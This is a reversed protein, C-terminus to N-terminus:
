NARHYHEVPLALQLAASRTHEMASFICSRIGAWQSLPTPEGLPNGSQVDWRQVTTHSSSDTTFLRAGEPSFVWNSVGAKHKMPEGLPAGTVSNWFQITDFDQGLFACFSRGDPSFLPNRVKQGQGDTQSITKGTELDWTRVSNSDLVGAAVSSHEDGFVILSTVPEVPEIAAVQEGTRTDHVAITVQRRIAEQRSGKQDVAGSDEKGEEMARGVIAVRNKGKLFRVNAIAKDFTLPEPLDLTEANSPDTAWWRLERDNQGQALIISSDSKVYLQKARLPLTEIQRLVDGGDTNWVALKGETPYAACIKTADPTLQWLALRRGASVRGSLSEGTRPDWAEIGNGFRGPSSM